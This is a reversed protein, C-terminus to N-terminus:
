LDTILTYMTYGIVTILILAWSIASMKENNEVQKQSRGQWQNRDWNKTTKEFVGPKNKGM